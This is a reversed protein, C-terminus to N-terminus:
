VLGCGCSMLSSTTTACALEVGDARVDVQRQLRAGRPDQLGHAASIVALAEHVADRQDALVVGVERQRGVDDDPERPLGLRVELLRELDHSATPKSPANVKM